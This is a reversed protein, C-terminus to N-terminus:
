DGQQNNRRIDWSIQSILSVKTRTITGCFLSQVEPCLEFPRKAGLPNYNTQTSIWVEVEPSPPM